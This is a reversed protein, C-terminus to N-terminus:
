RGSKELELTDLRSTTTIGVGEDGNDHTGGEGERGARPRALTSNIIYSKRM